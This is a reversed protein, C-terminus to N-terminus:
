IAQFHPPLLEKGDMSFHFDDTEELTYSMLLKNEIV